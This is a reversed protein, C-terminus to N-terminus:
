LWLRRRLRQWLTAEPQLDHPNTRHERDNIEGLPHRSSLWLPLNALTDALNQGFEAATPLVPEPLHPRRGVEGALVRTATAGLHQSRQLESPVAQLKADVAHVREVEHRLASPLRTWTAARRSASRESWDIALVRELSHMPSGRRDADPASCAGLGIALLLWVSRM